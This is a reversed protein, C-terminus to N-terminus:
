LFKKLGELKKKFDGIADNIDNVKDHNVSENFSEKKIGLEKDAIFEIVSDLKKEISSLKIKIEDYKKNLSQYNDM